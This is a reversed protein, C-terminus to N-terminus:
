SANTVRENTWAVVRIEKAFLLHPETAELGLSSLMTNINVEATAEELDWPPHDIEGRYVQGHRSAAYLCYRATLWYALTGPQARFPQGDGRYRLKLEAPAAGRHTRQSHYAYWGQQWHQQIRADLYNLHFVTRAVRVAIPNTADLSFFWVGPKDEAVVYTRVNLEPFASLWPIAPVGRPAVDSMRFPVVGIWAEGDYRDLELGSPLLAALPDAPVRFHMFLLDHWTMRMAWPRRPRPWQRDSSSM